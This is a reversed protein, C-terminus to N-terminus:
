NQSLKELLQKVSGQFKREKKTHQEQQKLVTPWGSVGLGPGCGLGPRQLGGGAVGGEVRM